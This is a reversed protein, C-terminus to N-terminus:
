TANNEARRLVILFYIGIIIDVVICYVPYYHPIDTKIFFANHHLIDWIGHLIIGYAILANNRVYGFVAILYFAVAVSIELVM